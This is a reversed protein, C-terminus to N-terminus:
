DIVGFLAGPGPIADAILYGGSPQAPCAPLPQPCGLFPLEPHRRNTLCSAGTPGWLAEINDLSGSNVQPSQTDSIIIRTGDVTNAQSDGCYSARKMHICAQHYDLSSAPDNQGTSAWPRYGWSMCKAVSGSECTMTVLGSGESRAANLPHWQAGQYFVSRQSEGNAGRCYSGWSAGLLGDQIYDIQYGNVDGFQSNVSEITNIRLRYNTYAVGLLNPVRLTLVLGALASGQVTQLNNQSDALEVSLQSGTTRIQRVQKTVGGLQAGTVEAEAPLVGVSASYWGTAWWTGDAHQSFGTMYWTLSVSSLGFWSEPQTSGVHIGTGNPRTTYMNVSQSSSDNEPQPVGQDGCGAALLISVPLVRLINDVLHSIRM